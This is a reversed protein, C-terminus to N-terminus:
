QQFLVERMNYPSYVNPSLYKKSSSMQRYDQLSQIVQTDNPDGTMNNQTILQDPNNFGEEVSSQGLFGYMGCGKKGRSDYSNAYPLNTLQQFDLGGSNFMLRDSSSRPYGSRYNNLRKCPGSRNGFGEMGGFGELIKYGSFAVILFLVLIVIVAVTGMVIKSLNEKLGLKTLVTLYKELLQDFM